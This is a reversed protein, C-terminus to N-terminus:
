FAESILRDQNQNASGSDINCFAIVATRGLTENWAGDDFGGETLTHRIAEHQEDSLRAFIGTDPNMDAFEACTPVAAGAACGGLFASVALVAAAPVFHRSTLSFRSM